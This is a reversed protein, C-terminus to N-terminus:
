PASTDENISSTSHKSKVFFSDIFKDLLSHLKEYLDDDKFFEESNIWDILNLTSSDLVRLESYLDILVKM